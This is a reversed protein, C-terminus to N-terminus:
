GIVGNNVEVTGTHSFGAYLRVDGDDHLADHPLFCEMDVDVYLGGFRHLIQKHTNLPPSPPGVSPCADIL